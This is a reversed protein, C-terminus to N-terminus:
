LASLPLADFQPLTVTVPFFTLASNNKRCVHAMTLSGEAWQTSVFEEDDDIDDDDYKENEEKIDLHGKRCIIVNRSKKQPM